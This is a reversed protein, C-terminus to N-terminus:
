IGVRVHINYPKLIYLRSNNTIYKYFTYLKLKYIYHQIVSFM